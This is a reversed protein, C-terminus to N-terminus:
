LTEIGLRSMFGFQATKESTALYPLNEYFQPPLIQRHRPCYGQQQTPIELVDLFALTLWLLHSKGELGAVFEHITV